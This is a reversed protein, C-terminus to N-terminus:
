NAPAGHAAPASASAAGPVSASAAPPTYPTLGQGAMQYSASGFPTESTEVRLVGSVWVAAMMGAPAPEAMVVHIVQNPPPPPVHICAGFYPVLLFERVEDRTADLPVVYGPIRVAQGALAPVAPANMWAERMQRLLDRARPDADRLSAVDERKLGALPDWDKPVLEPWAIERYDQAPRTQRAGWQLGFAFGAVIALVLVFLGFVILLRKQM